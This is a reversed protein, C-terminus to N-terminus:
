WDTSHLIGFSRLNRAKYNHVFNFMQQQPVVSIGTV